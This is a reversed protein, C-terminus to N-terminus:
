GTFPRRHRIAQAAAANELCVLDVFCPRPLQIATARALTGANVQWEIEMEEFLAPSWNAPITDADRFLRQLGRLFPVSILSVADPTPDLVLVQYERAAEQPLLTALVVAGAVKRLTVTGESSTLETTPTVGALYAKSFGDLQHRWTGIAVAGLGTLTVQVRDWEGNGNIGAVEVRVTTDAASDSLVELAEGAAAPQVAVPQTGKLAYQQPPGTTEFATGAAPNQEDVAEPSIPFLPTGTTLNRIAGDIGSMRGFHTPLAYARTGSVTSFTYPNPNLFQRWARKMWLREMCRNLLIEATNRAGADDIHGVFDLLQDLCERRTNIM